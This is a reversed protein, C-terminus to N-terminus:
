SKSPRDSYRNAALSTFHHHLFDRQKDDGLHDAIELALAPVQWPAGYDFLGPSWSANSIAKATVGGLLLYAREPSDPEEKGYALTLQRIRDFLDRGLHWDWEACILVDLNDWVERPKMRPRQLRHINYAWIAVWRWDRGRCIIEGTRILEDRTNNLPTNNM